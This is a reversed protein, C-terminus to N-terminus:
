SLNTKTLITGAIHTVSPYEFFQEISFQFSVDQQLLIIAQLAKLSTGSQEFFSKDVDIDTVARNLVRCFVNRIRDMLEQEQNTKVRSITSISSSYKQFLFFFLHECITSLFRKVRIDNNNEKPKDRDEKKFIIIKNLPLKLQIDTNLEFLQTLLTIFCNAHADITSKEFADFLYSWQCEITEETKDYMLSLELDFHGGTNQDQLTYNSLHCSNNLIIGNMYKYDITDTDVRFITQLFPLKVCSNPVRHLDILQDYPLHSYQVSELFIRQIKNVLEIFSISGLSEIKIRCPLVNVFMGISSGLEPRYRNLHNIGICADHNDPSIQCLFLYFCTLGLQFLTVNLQNAFKIMSRAIQLPIKIFIASGQERRRASLLSTSLAGFDLQRDWGYDKLTEYWYNRAETMSLNREHISYDIYQLAPAQLQECEYALKFQELFLDVARGDFSGHHFHFIIVDGMSLENKQNHDCKQIFHCRFVGQSETDFPRYVENNVAIEREIEDKYTSVCVPYHIRPHIIQRLSGQEVDFALRTRFIWHQAVIENLAKICKDISFYGSEVQLVSPM